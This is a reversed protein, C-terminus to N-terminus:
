PAWNSFGVQRRAVLAKKINHINEGLLNVTYLLLHHTGNWWLGKENVRVDRTVYELAFTFLLPSLATRIM